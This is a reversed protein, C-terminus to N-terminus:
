DVGRLYQGFAIGHELGLKDMANRKHRSITKESRNLRAAIARGTLGESLLRVVDVERPSLARHGAMQLHAVRELCRQMMPSYWTRGNRLAMLARHLDSLCQRKDFIGKVQLAVLAKLTDIDNRTTIVMLPLEPYHRRIHGLLALGDAQAPSPMSYDSILIDCPHERLAQLLAAGDTAEAVVEFRQRPVRQLVVRLGALVVPHDDALIIKISM